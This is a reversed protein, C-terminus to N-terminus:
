LRVSSVNCLRTCFTSQQFLRTHFLICVNHVKPKCYTDAQRESMPVTKFTMAKCLPFLRSVSSTVSSSSCTKLTLTFDWDHHSKFERQLGCILLYLSIKSFYSTTKFSFRMKLEVNEFLTERLSHLRDLRHQVEKQLGKLVNQFVQPWINENKCTAVGMVDISM